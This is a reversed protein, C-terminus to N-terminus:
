ILIEYAVPTVTIPVNDVASVFHAPRPGQPQRKLSVKLGAAKAEGRKKENEKVRELFGQRCKSPQVHEIRVNIRKEIMRGGIQKHVIIGLARPTVNYVVGTRGHYYKYPMGKQVAGNAKIDVLDGVRYVKLFTSPRVAGHERFKRSFM